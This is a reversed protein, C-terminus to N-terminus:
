DLKLFARQVVESMAPHIHISNTIVSVDMEAKMAVIVEHILTSAEPGIIQCGLIKHKQPDTLAKVFGDEERHAEGMATNKYYALGVTYPIDQEKLEDETAGVGAVQPHSFVAHPMATYDVAAPQDTFMNQIAYRAEWNAAHRFMHRGIIDGLAWVGPVTTQLYENVTIFGRDNTEIGGAATDLTDTNPQVGAAVLLQEATITETGEPGETTITFQKGDHSVATAQHNLLVTHERAFVETFKQAIDSDEHPILRDAGQIITVRVGLGGFFHGLEAGIYGGGIIALSTPLATLRLAGTSTLYPTDQLGAIPPINPRAGAAILIKPATIRQGDVEIVRQGVFRGRTQYLDINPNKKTAAEMKASNGDTYQTVRQMLAPFDVDRLEASLNYREAHRIQDAIDATHIYLKSPICGRNLCTGGIPGDEVLAARLGQQAAYSSIKAGAGSGIVIVDYTQDTM